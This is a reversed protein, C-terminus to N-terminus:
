AGNKLAQAYAAQAAASAEVLAHPIRAATERSDKVASALQRRTEEGSRPALLVAAAGGVLAGGLFAALLAFASSRVRVADECQTM